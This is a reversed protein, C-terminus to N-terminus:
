SAPQSAVEEPGEEKRLSSYHILWYVAAGLMGTVLTALAWVLPVAFWVREARGARKDADTWVGWAFAINAGLVLASFVLMMLQMGCAFIGVDASAGSM